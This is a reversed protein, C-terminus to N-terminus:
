FAKRKASARRLGDRKLKAFDADTLPTAPGSEVAAQLRTALGALGTQRRQEKELLNRVYEAPTEDGSQRAQEEVWERLSTPLSLQLNSPM